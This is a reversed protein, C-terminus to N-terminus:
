TNSYNVWLSETRVDKTSHNTKEVDIRKWGSLMDDYLESRYGSIAVKGQAAKCKTLLAKHDDDSMESSYVAKDGRTSHVYPPDVYFLTGTRDYMDIVKLAPRNEIQVSLLRTAVEFLGEVGGLYRSVVGAMGRRSGCAVSAWRGESAAQALGTRVMRARVFFRRADELPDDSSQLCHVFEERSYPTLLLKEILADRNDRLQRFFNCLSGDLDNYTEIPSPDRNLLVVGSGGFVDCFHEAKPLLPLLWSLHSFKGGYWGFPIM